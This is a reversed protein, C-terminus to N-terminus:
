TLINERPVWSSINLHFNLVHINEHGFAGQNVTTIVSITNKVM